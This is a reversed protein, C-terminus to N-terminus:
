RASSTRVKWRIRQLSVPPLALERGNEKRARGRSLAAVIVGAKGGRARVGLCEAARCIPVQSGRRRRDVEAGGFWLGLAEANGRGVGSRQAVTLVGGWRVVSALLGRLVKAQAGPVDGLKSGRGRVVGDGSDLQVEVGTLKPGGDCYRAM